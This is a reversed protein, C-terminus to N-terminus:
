NVTLTKKGLPTLHNWLKYVYILYPVPAIYYLFSLITGASGVSRVFIQDVLQLGFTLFALIGGLKKGHWLLIGGIISTITKLIIISIKASYPLLLDLFVDSKLEINSYIFYATGMAVVFTALAARKFIKKYAEKQKEPPLSNVFEIVEEHPQKANRLRSSKIMGVIIAVGGVGLLVFISALGTLWVFGVAIIIFSSAILGLGLPILIKPGWQM